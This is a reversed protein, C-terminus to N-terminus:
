ASRRILWTTGLAVALLIVIGGVVVVPDLGSSGSSTPAPSQAAPSAPSAPIGEVMFQTCAKAPYQQSTTGYTTDGCVTHVGPTAPNVKHTADFTQDPWALQMKFAGQADAKPGPTGLYPSPLDIYLGVFEGPPYGSGGITVALGPRGSSPDVSITPNFTAATAVHAVLVPGLSIGLVALLLVARRGIGQSM